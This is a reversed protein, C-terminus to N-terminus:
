DATVEASVLEAPRMEHFFVRAMLVRRRGVDESIAAAEELAKGDM